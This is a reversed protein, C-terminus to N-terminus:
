APLIIPPRGVEIPRLRAGLGSVYINNWLDEIPPEASKKAEEVAEDIEQRECGFGKVKPDSHGVFLLCLVCCSISVHISNRLPQGRQRPSASCQRQLHWERVCVNTQVHSRRVGECCFRLACECVLLVDVVCWSWRLRAPHLVRARADPCSAAHTRARAKKIEREMQKLEKADAFSHEMLLTRVHEIPDRARRVGQIEDRTRYTSGPDSISHGHYRYTDQRLAPRLPFRLFPV